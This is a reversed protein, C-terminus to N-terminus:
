CLIFTLCYQCKIKDHVPASPHFVGLSRVFEGFEIVGNRKVDFVDFIQMYCIVFVFSQKFM